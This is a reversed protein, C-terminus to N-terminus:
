YINEFQQTLRTVQKKYITETKARYKNKLFFMDLKVESGKYIYTSVYKHM